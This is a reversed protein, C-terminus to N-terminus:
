LAKAESKGWNRTEKLLWRNGEAVEEEEEEEKNGGLLWLIWLFLAPDFRKFSTITKDRLEKQLSQQAAVKMKLWMKGKHENDNQLLERLYKVKTLKWNTPLHHFAVLCQIANFKIAPWQWQWQTHTMVVICCSGADLSTVTGDPVIFCDAEFAQLSM